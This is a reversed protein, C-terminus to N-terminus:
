PGKEVSVRDFAEIGKPVAIFRIKSSLSDIRFPVVGKPLRNCLIMCLTQLILDMAQHGKNDRYVDNFMREEVFAHRFAIYQDM